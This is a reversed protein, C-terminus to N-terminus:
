TLVEEIKEPPQAIVARYKGEVVPRQLLKPNEIIIRIWEEDTFNRGKLEHKYVDEQTRLVESPKLNLKMLLSKLTEPTFPNEFYNVLEFALGKEQLYQLGKRSNKCRPNHYIKLM